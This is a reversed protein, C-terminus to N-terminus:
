DSEDNRCSEPRRELLVPDPLVLTLLPDRTLILEVEERAPDRSVALFNDYLEGTGDLWFTGVPSEDLRPLPCDLM